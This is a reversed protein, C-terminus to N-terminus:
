VGAATIGEQLKASLNTQVDWSHEASCWVATRITISKELTEGVVIHPEIKVACNPNAKLIQEIIPALEGFPLQREVTIDLAVRVPRPRSFNKISKSWMAGNPVSVFTGEATMVVSHYLHIEEVVGTVREGEIYDGVKYPKLILLLFGTFFNHTTQRLGIALAFGFISIAAIFTAIDIGFEDLLFMAALLIIAARLVHAILRGFAPDFLDRRSFARQVARGAWAALFWAVVLLIIGILPTYGYNTVFKDLMMSKWDM